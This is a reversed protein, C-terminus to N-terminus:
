YIGGDERQLILVLSFPFLIPVVLVYSFLAVTDRAEGPSLFFPIVASVVVAFSLIVGLLTRKPTGYGSGNSKAQIM